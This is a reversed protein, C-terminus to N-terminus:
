AMRESCSLGDNISIIETSLRPHRLVAERFDQCGDFTINDAIILGGVRALRLCYELVQLYGTKVFDIFILDFAEENNEDRCMQRLIKVGDGLVIRANIKLSNFNQRAERSIKEDIEITTLEAGESGLIIGSYGNATGLELVREPQLEKVQQLLWAGKARGIIPIGRKISNLELEGLRDIITPAGGRMERFPMERIQNDQKQMKPYNGEQEEAM